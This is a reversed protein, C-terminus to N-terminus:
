FVNNTENKTLGDHYIYLLLLHASIISFVHWLWHTGMYLFEPNYRKDIIRFVIAILICGIAGAVYGRNKWETRALYILLPLILLLGMTFYGINPREEHPIDFVMLITFFIFFPFLVMITSMLWTGFIKKWFHFSIAVSLIAIPLSDLLVWLIHGRVSHYVLSGIFNLGILLLSIFLFTHEKTHRFIKIGWYVLVFLLLIHSGTTWPDVPFSELNTEKYILGEYEM